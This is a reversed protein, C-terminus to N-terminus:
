KIPRQGIRRELIKTPSISLTQKSANNEKIELICQREIHCVDRMRVIM